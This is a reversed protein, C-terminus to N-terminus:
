HTFSKCNVENATWCCFNYHRIEDEFRADQGLEKLAQQSSKYTMALSDHLEYGYLTCVFCRLLPMNLVEPKWQLPLSSQHKPVQLQWILKPTLETNVFARNHFAFSIIQTILCYALQYNSHMFFKTRTTLMLVLDM